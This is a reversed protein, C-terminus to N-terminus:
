NSKHLKQCCRTHDSGCSQWGRLLMLKAVQILADIRNPCRANRDIQSPSQGYSSQVDYCMSGRVYHDIIGAMRAQTTAIAEVSKLETQELSQVM